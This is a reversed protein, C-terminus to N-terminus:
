KYGIIQYPICLMNNTAADAGYTAYNKGEDFTLTNNNNTVGRVRNNGISYNLRTSYSTNIRGTSHMRTSSNSELFTIEYYQYNTINDNLTITKGAFESTPSDNTWLIKINEGVEEYGLPVEVGEYDVIAGAPLSGSGSSPEINSLAKDVYDKTAIETTEAGEPNIWVNVNDDTPEETGVYVGSDGQPLVLNLVQNPTEGTITAEAEIGKTVEGITLNNAPGEPGQPGIMNILSKINGKSDKYKFVAM